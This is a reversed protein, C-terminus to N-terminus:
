SKKAAPPVTRITTIAHAAMADGQLFKTSVLSTLGRQNEVEGRIGFTPEIIPEFYDCRMNITTLWSRDAEPVVDPELTRVTHLAVMDVYTPTFGGFLQGNPNKLHDPLHVEVVLVGAAREVIKWKWAELLDGAAHGQPMLPSDDTM